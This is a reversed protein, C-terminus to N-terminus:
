IDVSLRNYQIQYSAVLYNKCVKKFAIFHMKKLNKDIENWVKTGRYFIYNQGQSKSFRSVFYVTANCRRTIHDHIPQIKTLHEYIGFSLEGDYLLYFFEALEFHYLDTLKLLKLNKYLPSTRCLKANLSIICILKNLRLKIEQLLYKHEKGWVIIGYQLRSHVLACLATCLTDISM